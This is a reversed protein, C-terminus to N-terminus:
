RTMHPANRYSKIADEIRRLYVETYLRGVLIRRAAAGIEDYEKVADPSDSQVLKIGKQQLIEISKANDQRSLVTLKPMFHKGNRLLIEQLDPPLTEFFKKAVVVAGSSNAIPTKLMYQVRMWWQLGIAALPPSYVGDILGTQLSTLVDAISLPIPHIGLAKFTAEAVPDGEWLWMKVDKMDARTRVPTKSFVNVFGVEAWGLLVFGGDEFAKSFEPDFDNHLSDIEAYSKFFFPSDLIRLKPAIEGIGVGTIGASHLQGLRVKRLVDKEDGQVANPYIRFGLRGGSEKRIAEDFEKMVIIWTTGEPAVTAFKITYQQAHVLFPTLVLAVM